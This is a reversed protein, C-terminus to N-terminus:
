AAPAQDGAAKHGFLHRLERHMLDPDGSNLEILRRLRTLSSVDIDACEMGIHQGELHVIPGVMSIGAGDEAMPLTLRCKEQLQFPYDTNCQLLAGKLAIDLLQVKFARGQVQLQVDAHFPVRVFHRLGQISSSTM